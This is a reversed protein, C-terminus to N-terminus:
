CDKFDILDYHRAITYYVSYCIILSGFAISSHLELVDGLYIALGFPAFFVLLGLVSAAFLVCIAAIGIYFEKFYKLVM